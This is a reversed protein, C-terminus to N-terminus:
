YGWPYRSRKVCFSGSSPGTLDALFELPPDGSPQYPGVVEIRYLGPALLVVEYDLDFLCNCDCLSSSESERIFIRGSAIEIDASITGPCCNFGANVHKLRLVSRGDYEYELCEVDSGAGLAAPARDAESGATSGHAASGPTALPFSKCDTHGILRGM